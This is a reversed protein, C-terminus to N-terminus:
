RWRSCSSTSGCSRAAAHDRVGRAGRAEQRRAHAREVARHRVRDDVRPERRARDPACRAATRAPGQRRRRLLRRAVGYFTALGDIVPTKTIAGDPGNVEAETAGVVGDLPVRERQGTPYTTLLDTTDGAFWDLTNVLLMPFAVRMPLDTASTAAPRRCRSGSRSSRASATASPPSSRIACRLVRARVRGEQRRDRVRQEQGHQRRVDDGLADGPPGRRDRHDAPERTEGRSRSRAHEARDPPLVPPEGAAAAAGRAHARRLDRRGHRRRDGPKADYEAPTVKLPEVNDYVLLAGELFLNDETVMLVKQKKRAPLLAYAKDDLPFPDRAARRRRRARLSRACSTTRARPSSRTSRASGSAPRSSSDDQQRRADDGNYLALKRHAPETGFNQIEIYVEYAAKNAIYRRVNFAIIGVNDSRRGVPLYRVDINSLDVAALNKTTGRRGPRRPTRAIPPRRRARRGADWSVLGLQPEPFAGDSILVILPNQRDRLADAAAGLARTLDAPTDSAEIGDIIKTLMPADTSFRSMPTAQGDVKMIMALDGGGM